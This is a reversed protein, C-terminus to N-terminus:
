KQCLLKKIHHKKFFLISVCWCYVFHCHMSNVHLLSLLYIHTTVDILPGECSACYLVVYQMLVDCAIWFDSVDDDYGACLYQLSAPGGNSSM